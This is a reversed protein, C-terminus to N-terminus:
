EHSGTYQLAGAILAAVLQSAMFSQAIYEISNNDVMLLSIPLLLAVASVLAVRFVQRHSILSYILLTVLSYAGFAMCLMVFSPRDYSGSELGFFLQLIIAEFVVTLFTMTTVLGGFLLTVHKRSSMGKILREFAIIAVPISAFYPIKGATSLQAYLGATEPDLLVKAALVDVTSTVALMFLSLFLLILLPRGTFLSFDTVKPLRFTQRLRLTRQKQSFYSAPLIAFTGFLIGLLAGHAGFGLMIAIVGAIIKLLSSSTAIMGSAIFQGEGQVSGLWTAAPINLIFIVALIYLLTPDHLQLAASIPEAWVVTLVSLILSFAIILRELQAIVRTQDKKQAAFFLALTNLSTFLAAAQMIFSIGIQVDGFESLSLMRATIPYYLFNLASALVSLATFWLSTKILKRSM